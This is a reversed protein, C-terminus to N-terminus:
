KTLIKKLESAEIIKKEIYNGNALYIVKTNALIAIKKYKKGTDFNLIDGGNKTESFVEIIEVKKERM